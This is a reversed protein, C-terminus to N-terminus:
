PTHSSTARVAELVQGELDNFTVMMGAEPDNLLIDKMEKLYDDLSERLIPRNEKETAIHDWVDWALVGVGVITGLFKGGAKAAVKAGTKAAMASAAKGASKAMMKGSLKGILLNMKGALLVAGGAGSATLAKLTVPTERNADVGSSTLAIGELYREWEAKPIKYTEPVADLNSRLEKVYHAATNRVIRELELEAIQPRLVRKSFEEQIEETLKEAATPQGEIWQHLGYQWLSKLGLVQQTWYSFYWELFDSDIREMLTGVWNNLENQAYAEASLRSQEMAGAIASDVESWDVTAIVPKDKPSQAENVGADQFMFFRGLAALIVIVIAVWILSTFIKRVADLNKAARTLFTDNM